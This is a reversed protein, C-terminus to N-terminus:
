YNFYILCDQKSLSILNIGSFSSLLIFSKVTSCMVSIVGKVVSLLWHLFFCLIGFKKRYLVFFHVVGALLKAFSTENLHNGRHIFHM